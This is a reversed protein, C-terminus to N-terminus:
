PPPRPKEPPPPRPSHGAGRTVRRQVLLREEGVRERRAAPLLQIRALYQRGIGLAIMAGGVVLQTALPDPERLGHQESRVFVHILDRIRNPLDLRMGALQSARFRSDSCPGRWSQRPESDAILPWSRCESGRWYHRPGM